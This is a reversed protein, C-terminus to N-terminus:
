LLLDKVDSNKFPIWYEDILASDKVIIGSEIRISPVYGFHYWKSGDLKYTFDLSKGIQGTNEP